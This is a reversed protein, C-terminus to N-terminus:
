CRCGFRPQDWWRGVHSPHKLLANALCHSVVFGNRPANAKSSDWAQQFRPLRLGNCEKLRQQQSKESPKFQKLRVANLCCSVANHKSGYLTYWPSPFRWAIGTLIVFIDIDVCAVCSCSWLIRWPCLWNRTLVIPCRMNAFFCFVRWLSSVVQYEFGARLLPLSRKKQFLCSVPSTVQTPISPFASDWMITQNDMNLITIFAALRRWSQVARDFETKPVSRQPKTRGHLFSSLRSMVMSMNSFFLYCRYCRDIRAKTRVRM